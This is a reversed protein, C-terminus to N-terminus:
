YYLSIIGIYDINDTTNTEYPLWIGTTYLRSKVMSWFLSFEEQGLDTSWDKM